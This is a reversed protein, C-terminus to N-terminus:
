QVDASFLLAIALQKEEYTVEIFSSRSIRVLPLQSVLVSSEVKLLIKDEQLFDGDFIKSDDFDWSGKSNQCVEGCPYV